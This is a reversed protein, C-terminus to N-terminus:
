WMTIVVRTGDDAEVRVLEGMPAASLVDIIMGADFAQWDWDELAEIVGDLPVACRVVADDADVALQLVDGQKAIEVRSDAAAVSVLNTDPSEALSTLAALVLERQQRLDPPVQVDSLAQDPIFATAVRAAVLPMPIRIHIADPPPTRVDVMMWDMALVTALTGALGVLVVAGVTSVGRERM